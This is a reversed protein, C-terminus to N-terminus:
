EYSVKRMRRSIGRIRLRLLEQIASSSFGVVRHGDRSIALRHHLAKGEPLFLKAEKSNCHLTVVRGVIEPNNPNTLLLRIDSANGAVNFELKSPDLEDRHIGTWTRVFGRTHIPDVGCLSVGLSAGDFVASSFDDRSNSRCHSQHKLESLVHSLEPQEAGGGPLRPLPLVKSWSRHVAGLHDMESVGQMIEAAMNLHNLFETASTKDRIMVTSGIGLGAGMLPYAVHPQSAGWALLADPWIVVVDNELHIIPADQLQAFRAVAVLRLYSTTWLSKRIEYRVLGRPPEWNEDIGLDRLDVFTVGQIARQKRNAILIVCGPFQTALRKLGNVAYPPLSSNLHVLVTLPPSKVCKRSIVSHPRESDIETYQSDPKM